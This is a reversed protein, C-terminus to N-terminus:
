DRWVFPFLIFSVLTLVTSIGAILILRNLNESTPFGEVAQFTLRVLSLLIPVTLPFGLVSLLTNKNETKAAIASVLTLNASLAMCGIVLGMLFLSVNQIVQQTLLTYLLWAIMGIFILLVTNYLLKALYIATPRALGYLYYLQGEQEGMFSKAVVQIAVFLLMLWYMVSWALPSLEVVQAKNLFALVIVVIMCAIYLVLGNLAHKQKWELMWEKRLVALIEKLFM